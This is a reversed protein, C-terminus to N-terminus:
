AIFSFIVIKKYHGIVSGSDLEESLKVPVRAGLRCMQGGLVHQKRYLVRPKLLM